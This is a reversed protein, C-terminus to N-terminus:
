WMWVIMGASRTMGLKKQLALSATNDKEVQGFPVFGKDMTAAILHKQLAAGFGQKRFEPFVFLIGMSGELHEGIFGVLSGDCYGLYISGRAVLAALEEEGLMHYNRTLVGLDDATAPKINLAGDTDPRKGYYAFQYCEIKETFGYKEYAAMGLSYDAVMLLNCDKGVRRDLLEAGAARGDCALMYAGSVRDRVLLAGDASAIIEGSGRRLIRDLGLNEIKETDM